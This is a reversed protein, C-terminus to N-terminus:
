FVEPARPLCPLPSLHSGEYVWHTSGASTQASQTPIPIGLYAILRSTYNVWFPLSMAEVESRKDQLTM